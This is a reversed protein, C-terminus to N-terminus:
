IHLPHFLVSSRKHFRSRGCRPAERGGTVEANGVQFAVLHQAGSSGPAATLYQQLVRRPCNGRNSKGVKVIWIWTHDSKRVAFTWMEDLELFSPKQSLACRWAFSM